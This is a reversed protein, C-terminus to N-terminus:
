KCVHFIILCGQVSCFNNAHGAIGGVVWWREWSLVLGRGRVQLQHRLIAPNIEDAVRQRQTVEMLEQLPSEAIDDFVLLAMTQEPRRPILPFRPKQPFVQRM